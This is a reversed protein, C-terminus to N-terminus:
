KARSTDQNFERSTLTTIPMQGGGSNSLAAIPRYEQRYEPEGAADLCRGRQAGQGARQHRGPAPTIGFRNGPLLIMHRLMLDNNLKSGGGIAVRDVLHKFHRAAEDVPQFRAGRRAVSLLFRLLRPLARGLPKPPRSRSSTSRDGVDPFLGAIQTDDCGRGTGNCLDGHARKDLTHYLPWAVYRTLGEARMDNYVAHKRSLSPDRELNEHVETAGDISKTPPVISTNPESGSM